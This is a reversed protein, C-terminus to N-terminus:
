LIICMENCKKNFLQKDWENMVTPTRFENPIDTLNAGYKLAHLYLSENRYLEPVKSISLGYKIATLYVNETLFQNPIDKLPVGRELAFICLEETLCSHPIFCIYNAPNRTYKGNLIIRRTLVFKCMEPTIFKEPILSINSSDSGVALQAKTETWYKSQKIPTFNTLNVKDDNLYEADAILIDGIWYHYEIRVHFLEPTTKFYNVMNKLSNVGEKIEKGFSNKDLLIIYQNDVEQSGGKPRSGEEQMETM